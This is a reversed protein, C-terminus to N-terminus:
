CIGKTPKATQTAARQAKAPRKAPPVQAQAHTGVPLGFALFLLTVVLVKNEKRTDNGRARLFRDTSQCTTNRFRSKAQFHMPIEQALILIRLPLHGM